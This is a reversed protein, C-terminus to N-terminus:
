RAAESRWPSASVRTEAARTFPPNRARIIQARNKKERERKRWKAAVRASADSRRRARRESDRIDARGRAPIWPVPQLPSPHGPHPLLLSTFCMEAHGEKSQFHEAPPLFVRRSLLTLTRSFKYSYLRAACRGMEESDWSFLVAYKDTALISPHPQWQQFFMNIEPTIMSINKM